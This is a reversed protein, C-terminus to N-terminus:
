FHFDKGKNKPCVVQCTDCGYLRNGLKDRFEDPIFTKTQTLFAICRKANLQGGQVLAGTPCADICRTCTGCQDEM